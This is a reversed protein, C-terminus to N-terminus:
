RTSLHCNASIHGFQGCKFCPGPLRNGGQQPVRMQLPFQAPMQNSIQLQPQQTIFGGGWMRGQTRNQPRFRSFDKHATKKVSPVSRSPATKGDLKAKKIAKEARKTPGVSKDCSSLSDGRFYAEAEYGHEHRICM